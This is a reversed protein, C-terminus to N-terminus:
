EGADIYPYGSDRDFQSYYRRLIEMENRLAKLQNHMHLIIDIGETNVNFTHQLRAARRITELDHGNLYEEDSNENIDLMGNEILNQILEEDAQCYIALEHIYENWKKNQQDM